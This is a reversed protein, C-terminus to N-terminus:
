PRRASRLAALRALTLAAAIAFLPSAPVHFRADGFFIVPALAM